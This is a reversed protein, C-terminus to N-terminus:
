MDQTNWGLGAYVYYMDRSQIVTFDLITLVLVKHLVNSGIAYCIMHVDGTHWMDRTNWGMYGHISCTSVEYRTYPKSNRHFTPPNAAPNAGM